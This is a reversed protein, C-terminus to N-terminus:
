ARGAKVTAFLIPLEANAAKAFELWAIEQEPRTEVIVVCRQMVMAIECMAGYVDAPPASAIVAVETALRFLRRLSPKDFGDPGLSRDTDDGIIVVASGEIEDPADLSDKSQPVILMHMGFDRIAALVPNLHPALANKGIMETLRERTVTFWDAAM